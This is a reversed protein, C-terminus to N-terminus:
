RDEPSYSGEPKRTRHSGLRSSSRGNGGTWRARPRCGPGGFGSSGNRGRSSVRRTGTTFWPSVEMARASCSRTIWSTPTTTRILTGLGNSTVSGAAKGETRAATTPARSFTERVFDPLVVVTRGVRCHAAATALAAQVAAPETAYMIADHILVFDFQRGLRLSRMDGLVHECDPTVQRSVAQMEPSRDTLTMQFHSKLNFALSGGGAGLELLTPLPSAPLPGLRSLLDAAEDVYHAPPSVLPWWEALDRYMRPVSSAM